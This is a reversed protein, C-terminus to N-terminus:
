MSSSCKHLEAASLPWRWKSVEIQRVFWSTEFVRPRVIACIEDDHGRAIIGRFRKPLLNVEAVGWKCRPAIWSYSDQRSEPIPLKWSFLKSSLHVLLDFPFGEAPARPAATAPNM